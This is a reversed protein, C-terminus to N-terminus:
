RTSGPSVQMQGRMYAQEMRKNRIHQNAAAGGVAGVGLTTLFRKAAGMPKAAKEVAAVKVVGEKVHSVLQEQTEAHKSKLNKFEQAHKLLLGAQKVLPNEMNVTGMTTTAMDLKRPFLENALKEQSEKVNITIVPDDYVSTLAKEIDGFTKGGLVAQKIMSYLISADNQYHMEVEDMSQTLKTELAALKYYEHLAETNTTTNEVEAVKVMPESLEVELLNPGSPPEQYDSDSVQSTKEQGFLKEAIKESDASAFQIYKDPSQNFMQVYVETNAAEVVRSVQDKNLGHESAIKEISKNLDTGATLYEKAAAKSWTDVDIITM